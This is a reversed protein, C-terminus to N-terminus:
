PKKTFIDGYREQFIRNKNKDMPITRFFEKMADNQAGTWEIVYLAEEDTTNKNLSTTLRANLIPDNRWKSGADLTYLFDKSIYRVYFDPVEHTFEVITVNVTKTAKKGFSDTIEYTVQYKGVIGSKVNSNKVIIKETIDGDEVDNASTKELLRADDVKESSYFWRDVAEITPPTNYKVTVKIEKKVTNAASDTVQYVVKYIGQKNVNTTDEIVKIKSTINGDELDSAKVDKMREKLWEDITYEGEYFTKDKATIEPAKDWQAILKKNGTTRKNMEAILQDYTSTKFANKADANVGKIIKGTEDKWGKFTFGSRTPNKFSVGYLVNYSTPNTQKGLTGGALDYALTYPIPNYFYNIGFGRTPQTVTLPLSYDYRWAGSLDSGIKTTQLAFGKPITLANNASLTYKESSKKNFNSTTGYYKLDGNNNGTGDANGEGNKFGSVYHFISNTYENIKWQAVLTKNSPPTYVTGGLGLNTSGAMWGMFTYGPRTPTPFTVSGLKWQAWLPITVNGVTSLSPVTAKNAYIKGNRNDLWGTFSANAMASTTSVSGGSVNYTVKYQRLFGNTTLTCNKNTLCINSPTSGSTAGNGNYQVTYKNELVTIKRTGTASFGSSDKTRTYVTYVGVNNLASWDVVTGNQNTIKDVVSNLSVPNTPHYANVGNPAEDKDYYMFGTSTQVKNGEVSGTAGDTYLSAWTRKGSAVEGSMWIGNTGVITPPSAFTDVYIFKKTDGGTGEVNRTEFLNKGSQLVVNFIETRRITGANHVGNNSSFTGIHSGNVYVSDSYLTALGEFNYYSGLTYRAINTKSDYNDLYLGYYATVYSSDIATRVGNILIPTNPKYAGLVISLNILVCLLTIFFICIKKQVKNKYLKM